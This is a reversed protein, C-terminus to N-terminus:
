HTKGIAQILAPGPQAVTKHHKPCRATYPQGPVASIQWGHQPGETFRFAFGGTSLLVFEVPSTAACDTEACRAHGRSGSIVM